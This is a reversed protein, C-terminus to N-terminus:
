PATVFHFAEMQALAELTVGPLLVGYTDITNNLRHM